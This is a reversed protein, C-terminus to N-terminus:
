QNDLIINMLSNESKKDKKGEYQILIDMAEVVQNKSEKLFVQSFKGKEKWNKFFGALLNKDDDSLLKWMQYSIGNNPKDKEYVTIKEVDVFLDAIEQSHDQYPTIAKDMLRSADVKIEVAKQYSYQDFPATRIAACSNFMFVALGILAFLKLPISNKM